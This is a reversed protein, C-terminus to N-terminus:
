THIRPLEGPCFLKFINRMFILDKFEIECLQLSYSKDELQVSSQLIEVNKMCLIYVIFKNQPKKIEKVPSM